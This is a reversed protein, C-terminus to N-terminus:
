EGEKVTTETSAVEETEEKVAETTEVVDTKKEDTDSVYTDWGGFNSGGM